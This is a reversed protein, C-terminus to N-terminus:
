TSQTSLAARIRLLSLQGINKIQLLQADTLPAIEDVYCYGARLLAHLTSTPLELTEATLPTRTTATGNVYYDAVANGFAILKSDGVGPAMWYLTLLQLPGLRKNIKPDVTKMPLDKPSATKWLGAFDM